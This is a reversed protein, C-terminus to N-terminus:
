RSMVKSVFEALAKTAPDDAVGLNDNLKVHNTEKAGFATSKIGAEKLVGDLRRAQISTDPHDNVYLILFPPINKGKAIHTVASFDKQKELTEGFKIRHGQKPPPFGHVRLRTEATEIMAPIDYTDGDVPVCGLLVDFSIGESKLYREDTCLIAALQAGASHGGVLVRQPDGGYEAIHKHVWGFSKAVDSHLTAMDVNPWLRYNISVFVFGRDMFWQPKLKVDSKDGAQWGGGHIWFVVPLDKANPPAYIDLVQREDPNEIYPINSKTPTPATQALAPIQLLSVVTILLTIISKM